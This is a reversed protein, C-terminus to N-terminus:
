CVDYYILNRRIGEGQTIRWIFYEARKGGPLPEGPNQPSDPQVSFGPAQMYTLGPFFSRRATASPICGLFVPGLTLVKVQGKREQPSGLLFSKRSCKLAPVSLQPTLGM